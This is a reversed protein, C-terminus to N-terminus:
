DDYKVKREWEQLLEARYDAAMHQLAKRDQRSIRKRPGPMRELMVAKRLLFWVRFHCQGGKKAHFHPPRHDQSYFWCEVGEISSCAVKAM